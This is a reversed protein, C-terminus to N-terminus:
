MLRVQVKVAMAAMKKKMRRKTELDKRESEGFGPEVSWVM